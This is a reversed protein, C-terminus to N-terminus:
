QQILSEWSYIIQESSVTTRVAMLFPNIYSSTEPVSLAYGTLGEISECLYILVPAAPIAVSVPIVLCFCDVAEGFFANRRQRFIVKRFGNDLLCGPFQRIGTQRQSFELLL